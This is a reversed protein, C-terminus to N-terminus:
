KKIDKVITEILSVLAKKSKSEPIEELRQAVRICRDEIIQEPKAATEDLDDYFYTIPLGLVRSIAWLRSASVRNTGNEYKQVQQFSINLKQALGNQNLSNSLRARRLRTGIETDFENTVRM